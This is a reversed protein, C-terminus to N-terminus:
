INNFIKPEAYFKFNKYHMELDPIGRNKFTLYENIPSACQIICSINQKETIYLNCYHVQLNWTEDGKWNQAENAFTNIAILPEDNTDYYNSYEAMGIIKGGYNKSTFFWLIDGKCLKNLRTKICGFRGEKMGWFPYKSNRFNEGDSVRILWHKKSTNNNINNYTNDVM